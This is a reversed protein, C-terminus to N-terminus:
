SRQTIFNLRASVEQRTPPQRHMLSSDYSVGLAQGTPFIVYFDQKTGPVQRKMDTVAILINIAGYM